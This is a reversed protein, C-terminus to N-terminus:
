WGPHRARAWRERLEVCAYWAGGGLTLAIGLANWGSIRLGFVAVACLITLVQKVNAAVTMGLAGVRRNARFSVVNLGFALAGNLLLACAGAASLDAAAFARVRALEGTAYALLTCHALALPSLVSLLALPDAFPPAPPAQLVHTFITKLAALVTGLLTLLLGTPTFYYDGFTAFGVGAVVPILSINKARSSRAGYLLRSFFITFIPTSARVVQHFPITVLQLSVNSVTINVAYLVSFALLITTERLYLQPAVFHGRKALVSGGITGLLAHLASLTYPFPFRLLVSKNYITLGLNCCFYM